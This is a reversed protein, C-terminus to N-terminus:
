SFYSPWIKTEVLYCQGGVIANNGSTISSPLFVLRHDVIGTCLIYKLELNIILSTLPSQMFNETHCRRLGLMGNYIFPLVYTFYTGENFLLNWTSHCQIERYNQLDLILLTHHKKQDRPSHCLDSTIGEVCEAKKVM